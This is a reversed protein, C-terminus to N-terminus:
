QLYAIVMMWFFQVLVSYHLFAGIVVCSSIIKNIILHLSFDETSVLSLIIMQLAISASLQLLVKSSAKQRWSEFKAATIFIGSIGLISLSSGMLTIIDLTQGHVQLISVDIGGEETLNFGVLYAFPTLHSV